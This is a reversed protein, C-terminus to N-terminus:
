VTLANVVLKWLSLDKYATKEGMADSYKQQWEAGNALFTLRFPAFAAYYISPAIRSITRECSIFMRLISEVPVEDSESCCSALVGDVILTNEMTYPNYRGIEKTIKIELVPELKGKAWIKDGVVVQRGALTTDEVPIYHEPSLRITASKTILNVYENTEFANRHGFFYVASFVGGATLVEDGIKLDQMEVEATGKGKRVTVLADAPFCAANQAKNLLKDAIGKAYIGVAQCTENGLRDMSNFIDTVQADTSNPILAQLLSCYQSTADNHAKNLAANYGNYDVSGDANYYDSKIIQSRALTQMDALHYINLKCTGPPPADATGRMDKELGAPCDGPCGSGEVICQFGKGDGCDKKYFGQVCDLQKFAATDNWIIKNNRTSFALPRPSKSIEIRMGTIQDYIGVQSMGESNYPYNGGSSNRYNHPYIDITGIEIDAGLDVQWFTDTDGDYYEDSLWGTNADFTSKIEMSGNVLSSPNMKIPATPSQPPFAYTHKGQSVINGAKDKVVVQSLALWSLYVCVQNKAVYGSDACQRQRCYFTANGKPDTVTIPDSGAPCTKAPTTSNGGTTGVINATTDVTVGATTSKTATQQGNQTLAIPKAIKIAPWLRVFRGTKSIAKTIPATYTSTGQLPTDYIQITTMRNSTKIGYCVAGATTNSSKDVVMNQTGCARFQEPACKFDGGGWSINTPYFGEDCTDKICAIKSNKYASYGTPCSGQFTCIKPIKSSDGNYTTATGSPAAYNAPCVCNTQIIKESQPAVSGTLRNVEGTWWSPLNTNQFDGRSWSASTWASYNFVVCKTPDTPHNRGMTQDTDPNFVPMLVMWTGRPVGRQELQDATPITGIPGYSNCPRVCAGTNDPKTIAEYQFFNKEKLKEITNPYGGAVEKMLISSIQESSKAAPCTFEKKETCQMKVVDKNVMSREVVETPQAPFQKYAKFQNASLGALIDGIKNMDDAMEERRTYNADRIQRPIPPAKIKVQMEKAVGPRPDANTAALQARAQDLPAQKIARVFFNTEANLENELRTVLAQAAAAAAGGFTAINATVLRSSPVFMEIWAFYSGYRVTASNGMWPTQQLSAVPDITGNEDAIKLWFGDGSADYFKQSSDFGTGPNGANIALLDSRIKEGQRLKYYKELQEGYGGPTNWLDILGQIRTKESNAKEFSMAVWGPDCWQAGRRWADLLQVPNALEAKATSCIQEAEEKSSFDGGVFYVEKLQQNTGDGSSPNYNITTAAAAADMDDRSVTTRNLNFSRSAAAVEADTVNNSVLTNSTPVPVPPTGDLMGVVDTSWANGAVSAENVGTYGSNPDSGSPLLARMFVDTVAKIPDSAQTTTAGSAVISANNGGAGQSPDVRLINKTTTTNTIYDTVCTVKDFDIDSLKNIDKVNSIADAYALSTGNYDVRDLGILKIKVDTGSPETMTKSITFNKDKLAPDVGTVDAGSMSFTVGPNSTTVTGIKMGVLPKLGSTVTITNGPSSWSGTITWGNHLLSMNNFKMKAYSKAVQADTLGCAQLKTHLENSSRNDRITRYICLIKNLDIGSTAYPKLIKKEDVTADPPYTAELYSPTAICTGTTTTDTTSNKIRFHLGTNRDAPTISNKLADYFGTDSNYGIYRIKAIKYSQGLDVSWVASTGSMLCIKSLDVRPTLTGDVTLSNDVTPPSSRASYSSLEIRPRNRETTQTSTYDAKLRGIYRISHIPYAQGLDIELYESMKGPSGDGNTAFTKNGSQPTLTKNDTVTSAAAFGSYSSTAYVPKGSALNEMSANLVMLQTLNVYGDSQLGPRVRVYRAFVRPVVVAQDDDTSPLGITMNPPVCTATVPKGLALNVNNSDYVAVQSLEVSGTNNPVIEVYRGETNFTLVQDLTDTPLAKETIKCFPTDGSCVRAESGEGCTGYMSFNEVKRTALSIGYLGICFILLAAVLTFVLYKKSMLTKQISPPLM